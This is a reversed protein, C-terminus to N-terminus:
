FNWWQNCVSLILFLTPTLPLTLPSRSPSISCCTCVSLLYSFRLFAFLSLSFTLFIPPHSLSLSLPSPRRIGSTHLTNRIKYNYGNLRYQVVSSLVCYFWVPCTQYCVDVNIFNLSVCLFLKVSQVNCILIIKNLAKDSIMSRMQKKNEKWFRLGKWQYLTCCIYVTSCLFIM